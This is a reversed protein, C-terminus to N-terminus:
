TQALPPLARLEGPEGPQGSKAPARKAADREAKRRKDHRLGGERRPVLSPRDSVCLTVCVDHFGDLLARATPARSTGRPIHCHSNYVTHTLNGARQASSGSVLSM